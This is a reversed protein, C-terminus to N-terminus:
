VAPPPSTKNRVESRLGNIESQLSDRVREIEEKCEHEREKLQEEIARVQRLCDKHDGTADLAKKEARLRDDSERKLTNHADKLMSQLDTVLALFAGTADQREQSRARVDIVRGKDRSKIMATVISGFGVSTLATAILGGIEIATM